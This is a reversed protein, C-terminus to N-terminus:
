RTPVVVRPCAEAAFRALRQDRTERAIGKIEDTKQIGLIRLNRSLNNFNQRADEREQAKLREIERCTQLNATNIIEIREQAADKSDRAITYSLWGGMALLFMVTGVLMGLLAGNKTEVAATVEAQTSERVPAM